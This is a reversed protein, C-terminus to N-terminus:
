QDDQSIIPCLILWSLSQRQELESAVSRLQHVIRPEYQRVVSAALCMYKVSLASVGCQCLCVDTSM